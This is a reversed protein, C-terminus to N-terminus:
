NLVVPQARFSVQVQEIATLFREVIEVGCHQGGVVRLVARHFARISAGVNTSGGGFLDEAAPEFCEEIQLHQTSPNIMSPLRTACTKSTSPM